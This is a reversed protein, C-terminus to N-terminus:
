IRKKAVIRHDTELCYCFDEWGHETFENKM